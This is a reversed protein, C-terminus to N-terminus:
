YESEEAIPEEAISEEMPEEVVPAPQNRWNAIAEQAPGYTPTNPPVLEGIQIALDLEGNAARTNALDLIMQSWLTIAQQAQEHVETQDLPVLRAASIAMSYNNAADTVSAGNSRVARGQAMDMIVRSWRDIAQQAEEYLPQDPKVLRAIKIAEVLDSVQNERVPTRTRILMTKGQNLLERNTQELLQNHEPTREAAPIQALQRNADEYQQAQFASQASQLALVPDVAVVPLSTPVPSADPSNPAPQEISPEQTPQPQQTPLLVARNNSTQESPGILAGSNRLIVGFLLIGAIMGGQVLLRRWFFEDSLALPDDNESQDETKTQKAKTDSLQLAPNAAAVLTDSAPLPQEKAGPHLWSTIGQKWEQGTRSLFSLPKALMESRINGLGVSAMPKLSAESVLEQETTRSLPGSRSNMLDPLILQYRLHTPVVALMDQRPRWFEESLQPLRQQLSDILQEVTVCGNQLASVLAATFIGQRLTLPEHSFQHPQCSLLTAIGHTQALQATQQGFGSRELGLQSRNADLMLVINATPLAKFANLLSEVAIGTAAVQKPEAEIPLLFDQGQVQVGYGSFLCLLVDGPKIANHLRAVAAQINEVTPFRPDSSVVTVHDTLLQCSQPAFGGSQILFKHMLEADRQAYSLPPLFRYQNIGIGLFWYNVM